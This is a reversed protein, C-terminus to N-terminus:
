REPPPVPPTSAPAPAPAAFDAIAEPVHSGPPRPVILRVRIPAPESDEAIEVSEIAVQGGEATATGPEVAAAVLLIVFIGVITRIVARPRARRM